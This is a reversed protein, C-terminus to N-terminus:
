PSVPGKDRDGIREQGQTQYRGNFKQCGHFNIYVGRLVAGFVLGWSTPHRNAGRCADLLFVEGPLRALNEQNEYDCKFKMIQFEFCAWSLFPMNRCVFANPNKVM